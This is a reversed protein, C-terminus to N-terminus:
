KGGNVAKIVDTLVLDDVQQTYVTQEIDKTSDYYVYDYDDEGDSTTGVIKNEKDKFPVDKKIEIIEIKYM